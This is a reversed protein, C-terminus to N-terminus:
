AQQTGGSPAPTQNLVWVEEGRIAVAFQRLPKKPKGSVVQGTRTYQGKHCPCKFDDERRRYAVTCGKHSCVLSLCYPTEQADLGVWVLDGNFEATLYGQRKLATLTGVQMEPADFVGLADAGAALGGLGAVVAAGIGVRKLFTRRDLGDLTEDDKGVNPM